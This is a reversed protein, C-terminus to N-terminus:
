EFVTYKKVAGDKNLVLRYDKYTSMEGEVTWYVVTGDSLTHEDHVFGNDKLSDTRKFVDLGLKSLEESSDLDNIWKDPIYIYRASKTNCDYEFIQNCSYDTIIIVAGDDKTNVCVADEGQVPIPFGVDSESLCDTVNSETLNYLFICHYDHIIAIEGNCYVTTPMTSGIAENSLRSFDYTGADSSWRHNKRSEFGREEIMSRVEERFEDSDVYEIGYFDCYEKITDIDVKDLRNERAVSETQGTNIGYFNVVVFCCTMIIAILTMTMLFLKKIYM